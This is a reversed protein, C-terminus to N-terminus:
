YPGIELVPVDVDVGANGIEQDQDRRLPPALSLSRSVAAEAHAVDEVVPNHVAEGQHVEVM